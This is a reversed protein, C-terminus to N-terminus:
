VSGGDGPRYGAGAGLHLTALMHQFAFMLADSTGFTTMVFTHNSAPFVVTIVTGLASQTYLYGPVGDVTLNRRDAVTPDTAPPQAYTAVWGFSVCSPAGPADAQRDAGPPCVMHGGSLAPSPSVSAWNGPIQLTFGGSSDHYPQWTISVPPEQPPFYFIPTGGPDKFVFAGPPPTPEPRGAAPPSAVVWHGSRLDNQNAQYLYGGGAAGALLGVAAIVALVVRRTKTASARPSALAAPIAQIAPGSLATAPREQSGAGLPQGCRMCFLASSLNSTQCRPCIM